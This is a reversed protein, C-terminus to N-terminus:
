ELVVMVVVAVLVFVLVVIVITSRCSGCSDGNCPCFYEFFTIHWPPPLPYKQFISGYMNLTKHELYGGFFGHRVHTKSSEM